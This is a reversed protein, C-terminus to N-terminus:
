LEALAFPKVLYDDAGADLGEIRDAVEDRATLVIIVPPSVRSRAAPILHLGEGDPLRRDLLVLRYPHLVIAEFADALRAVHDAERGDGALARLIERSLAPDDEVLLIRSNDTVAVAM